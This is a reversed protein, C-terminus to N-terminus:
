PRRRIALTTLFLIAAVAVVAPGTPLDYLLSAALGLGVALGGLLAAWGAMGEPSRALNRAAAAPIILLAGVLLVGVVKMAAAVALAVLVLFALRVRDVAVGEVRALDADIAIAVLPRWLLALGALVIAGGGWVWVLDIRSVALLDGFLYGMLDNRLAPVLAAAILGIALASHSLIGLATDGALQSRREFFALLLAFLLGAILVGPQPGLGILVGLALGAVGGHALADGFYAMRRWVVVCGLPGAVLAVGLGALLARILFEDM